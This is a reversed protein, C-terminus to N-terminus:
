QDAPLRIGVVDRQRHLQRQDEGVDQREGDQEGVADVGEVPEQGEERRRRRDRHGDEDGDADCVRASRGRTAGRGPTWRPCPRSPRFWRHVHSGAYRREGARAGPAACAPEHADCGPLVPPRSGPSFCDRGTYGEPLSQYDLTVRDWPGRAGPASCRLALLTDASHEPPPRLLCSGTARTTTALGAWPDLAPKVVGDASPLGASPKPRVGLSCATLLRLPASGAAASAAPFGAARQRPSRGARLRAAAVSGSRPARSSGAGGFSIAQGLSSLLCGRCFM